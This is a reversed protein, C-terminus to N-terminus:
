GIGSAMLGGAVFGLVTALVLSLFAGKLEDWNMFQYIYIYFPVFMCMLGQGISNSFAHVLTIVVAVINLMIASIWVVVGLMVGLKYQQIKGIFTDPPQPGMLQSDVIIVAGFGCVLVMVFLLAIVYWPIGAKDHLEEMKNDRSMNEVAEDLYLNGFGGASKTTHSQLQEGTSFNLGCKTCLIAGRSIPHECRPCTPGTKKGVGAEELMGALGPDVAAPPNARQPAAAPAPAVPANGGSQASPIRLLQQCKPCKGQKGALNDPVNLRQGCSCQVAIPM